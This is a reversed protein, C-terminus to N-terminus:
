RALERHISRLLAAADRADPPPADIRGYTSAECRSLLAGVEDARTVGARELCAVGERRTLADADLGFRDAVYTLVARAIGRDDPRRGLADLARPLATRRRARVPDRRRRMELAGAAAAWALPPLILISLWLPSRLLTALDYRDARLAAISVFNARVGGRGDDLTIAQIPPRGSGIADAATIERTPQVDLPIPESRAVRYEGADTDFYVLEVPPIEDIEDSTARITTSFSVRGPGTGSRSWGENSLKFAEFGPQRDLPPAPVRAIPEPGTISIGLTIPDGVAVETPNALADIAYAGVLGNFNAPRGAEPLARVDLVIEESRAVRRETVDERFLGRGRSGVVIDFVVSAPGIAIEGPRRPVIVLDATLTAFVRGDIRQQGVVGNAVVNGIEFEIVESSRGRPPAPVNMLEADVEDLGLQFRFGNPSAGVVWTLTLTTPEGVYVTEREAQLRLTFDESEEPEVVEVRVPGTEYTEGGVTVRQAPVVFAGVEDPTLRYRISASDTRRGNVISTSTSTGAQAVDVGPLGSLTPPTVPADANEVVIEYLEADGLYIREPSVRAQVRVDQALAIGHLAGVILWALFCRHM